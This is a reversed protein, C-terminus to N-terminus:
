EARKGNITKYDRWCARASRVMGILIYGALALPLTITFFITKM